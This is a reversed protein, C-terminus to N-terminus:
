SSERNKRNVYETVERASREELFFMRQRDNRWLLAGIDQAYTAVAVYEKASAFDRFLFGRAQRFRDMELQWLKIQDSITPPLGHAGRQNGGLYQIMQEATIGNSLARRASNRTLRGIVLNAFRSKLSCFLNLISIQLPSDTYAYLRYNTEVIIFGDDKKDPSEVATAAAAGIKAAKDNTLEMAAYFVLGDNRVYVIGLESLEQLIRRHHAPLEAASHGRGLELTGLRFIFSLIDVPDMDLDPANNLYHLLLTWVQTQQDQLLFQFGESTIRQTRSLLGSKMLLALIMPSMKKVPIAMDTQASAVMFHLMAEWRQQQYNRLTQLSMPEGHEEFSENASGGSLAARLSSQFTSNMELSNSTFRERVIKLNRLKHIAEVQIRRYRPSVFADLVTLSLPEVSFLMRMVIAKALPTILRLLALCSAPSQFLRAIVAEPLTELYTELM